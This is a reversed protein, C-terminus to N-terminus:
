DLLGNLRETLNSPVEDINNLVIYEGNESWDGYFIINFISFKDIM